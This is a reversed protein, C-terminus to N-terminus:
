PWTRIRANRRDNRASAARAINALFQRCRRTSLFPVNETALLTLNQYAAPVDKFRYKGLISQMREVSPDPDLILDAEPESTAPEDSFTQHLLHDLIKRNLTTKEQYDALFVTLPDDANAAAPPRIARKGDPENGYGMRLALKRLEEPRDPLRHTQLDFMLQLRHEIKRLFRYTDDLARYEQDTLCGVDELAAMAKLTNPQRIEPLDGGNLLQLFQITFEVDRIGGHGTKVDRVGEGARDTRHEIRRKLAKIENIEAFSLYKRYVFPEMSKLFEEGLWVDGAVPRIKILAQREWTRGLTDYYRLTSDLSRALPGRQGEPRLRLDVRYAQGRDTHTSLLRVVESAVRAFFECNSIISSRKGSTSGDQDFVFMLDIDSSYNLEKGGLKGFGLVICRAPEGKDNRPEGFRQSMNRRATSLAVEVATDAVRSIDRTVEELSRGRIIDNSGIRLLQRQRFRRFARLLASDEFSNDVDGQLQKLMEARSPSSRLPIRITDLYEPFSILLDSFFQSTSFLQVLTELM